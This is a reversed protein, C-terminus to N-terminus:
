YPFCSEYILKEKKRNKKKKSKYGGGGGASEFILSAVAHAISFPCFPIRERSLHQTM